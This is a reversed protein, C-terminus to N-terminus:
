LIGILQAYRYLSHKDLENTVDLEPKHESPCANKVKKKLKGEDRDEILLGEVVKIINNIYTYPSTSWIM